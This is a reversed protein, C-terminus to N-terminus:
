RMSSLKQFPKVPDTSVSRCVPVQSCSVALNRIAWWEPALCSKPRYQRPIIGRLRLVCNSSGERFSSHYMAAIDSLSRPAV